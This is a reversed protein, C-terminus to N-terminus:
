KLNETIGTSSDSMKKLINALTSMMKNMRDMAMQLRLSETEGMESTADLNSKAKEVVADLDKKSMTATPQLDALCKTDRMCKKAANVAQMASLAAKQDARADEVMMMMMLMVADDISTTGLDVGTVARQAVSLASPAPTGKRADAAVVNSYAKHASTAFAARSGAPVAGWVRTRQRTIKMELAAAQAAPSTHSPTTHSAATTTAPEALAVSPVSPVSAVVLALTLLGVLASRKPKM